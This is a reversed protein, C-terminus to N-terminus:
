AFNYRRPRSALRRLADDSEDTEDMAAILRDFYDSPVLTVQSLVEDAREEAAEIVFDTLTEDLRAAAARLKRETAPKLRFNVRATEVTM